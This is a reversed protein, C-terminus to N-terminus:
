GRGWRDEGCQKGREIIRRLDQIYIAMRKDRYNKNVHELNRLIIKMGEADNESYGIM